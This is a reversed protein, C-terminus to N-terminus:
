RAMVARPGLAYTNKTIPPADFPLDVRIGPPPTKM